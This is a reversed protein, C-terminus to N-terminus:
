SQGCAVGMSSRSFCERTASRTAGSRTVVIGVHRHLTVAVTEAVPATPDDRRLATDPDGGARHHVVGAHGIRDIGRRLLARHLVQGVVRQNEQRAAAVAFGIVEGLCGPMQEAVRRQTPRPHLRDAIENAVVDREVVRRGPRGPGCPLREALPAADAPVERVEGHRQAAAHADRRAVAGAIEAVDANWRQMRRHIKGAPEFRIEATGPVAEVRAVVRASPAVRDIHRDPGGSQGARRM